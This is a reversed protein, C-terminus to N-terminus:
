SIKKKKIIGGGVENISQVYFFALPDTKQIAQKLRHIELRTVITIIIDCDARVDFSGPLYGREGKYVSIAKKYDKVLLSKIAEYEKSIITLATYEEFGDVVYDSTKTATFYTLISYMATELGFYFGAILMIVVNIVLIIESTNLAVSRNTYDAIIELGDIMGGARIVLGVGLGILFGGFFAILIKDETVIPINLVESLVGLLLIAFLSHIAFTKGIKVYGFYVFILNLLVFFVSFHIDFLEYLIISMSTVGGDMFRNPILFGNLAIVSILVGSVTYILSQISFISDWEIKEEEQM